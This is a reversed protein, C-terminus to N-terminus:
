EETEHAKKYYALAKAREQELQRYGERLSPYCTIVCALTIGVVGLSLFASVWFGITNPVMKVGLQLLMLFAIGGLALAASRLVIM